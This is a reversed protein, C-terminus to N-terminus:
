TREGPCQRQPSTWVTEEEEEEDEEEQDDHRREEDEDEEDEEGDGDHAALVRLAQMEAVECLYKGHIRMPICGRAIRTDAELKM